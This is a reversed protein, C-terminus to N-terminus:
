ALPRGFPLTEQWTALFAEARYCAGLLPGDAHDAGTVLDTIGASAAAIVADPSADGTPWGAWTPGATSVFDAHVVVGRRRLVALGKASVPQPGTPVVVTAGIADATTGDIMGMRSGCLLADADAALLAELPELEAALSGVADAGQATLEDTPLGDPDAATGDPSSVAVVKAGRAVLERVTRATLASGELAVRRGDLGGLAAEAAIVPGLAALHTHLDLGDVDASRVADRRDHAALRALAEPTVGSGADLALGAEVKPSVEDVFSAIAAEREDAPASIGASAGSVKLERSAFTYTATRALSQTSGQLVKNAARVVGAAQDAGPLDTIVFAATTTLKDIQVPPNHCGPGGGPSTLRGIVIHGSDSSVSCGTLHGM